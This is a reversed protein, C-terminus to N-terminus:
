SGPAYPNFPRPRNHPVPGSGETHWQWNGNEDVWWWGAKPEKPPPLQAVEWVTKTKLQYAFAETPDIGAPRPTVNGQWDVEFEEILFDRPDALWVGSRLAGFRYRMDRVVAPQLTWPNVAGGGADCFWGEDRFFYRPTTPLPIFHVKRDVGVYCRWPLYNPDGMQVVGQIADWCRTASTDIDFQLRDVQTYNGDVIGTALFESDTGIVDFVFQSAGQRIKSGTYWFAGPYTNNTGPLTRAQDQYVDV